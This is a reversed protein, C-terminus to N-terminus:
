KSLQVSGGVNVTVLSKGAQAPLADNAMSAAEAQMRMMPRPVGGGSEDGSVSVERLSWSSLGFERTVADARARFRAIAQATVEGEFKERAERSLSFGVRGITLTGIRGALQTIAAVDRGQVILETSGQWGVIGAPANPTRPNPAAYRPFLSFNGTQVELQGGPRAVKRAEALAADLAQRLQAQVAAADPGDRSTTFNITLWDNQVELAATASLSVVNAPVPMLPAQAWAPHGLAVPALVLGALLSRHHPKM